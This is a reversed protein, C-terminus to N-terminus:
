ECNETHVNRSILRAESPTDWPLFTRVGPFSEYKEDSIESLIIRYINVLNFNNKSQKAFAERIEPINSYAAFFTTMREEVCTNELREQDFYAGPGHDGHILVVIPVNDPIATLQNLIANEVFLAKERYGEIYQARLRSSGDVFDSGDSLFTSGQRLQGDATLTFPPHPALVHQYHFFPPRLNEFNNPDLAAKIMRNHFKADISPFRRFLFTEFGTLGGSPTVLEAGELDFYAYGSHSYSLNYQANRLAGIIGGNTVTYGLDKRYRNVNEESNPPSIYGGSMVSAMVFLTQNYPTNVNPFVEYGLAELGSIFDSNNHNYIDLLTDASGYGDLVIHIISPTQILNINEIKGSATDLVRRQVNIIDLSFITLFILLVGIINGFAMLKDYPIRRELITTLVVAAFIIGSIVPSLLMLLFASLLLAIFGAKQWSKTLWALILLVSFVGIAVILAVRHVEFISYVGLYRQWEIYPYQVFILIPGFPFILIKKM